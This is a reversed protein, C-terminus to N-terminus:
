GGAIIRAEGTFVCATGFGAAGVSRAALAASIELSSGDPASFFGDNATGSFSGGGASAEFFALPTTGVSGNFGAASIWEASGPGRIGPEVTRTV